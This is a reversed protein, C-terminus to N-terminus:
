ATIEEYLRKYEFAVRDISFDRAIFNWANRGLKKGYKEDELLKIIGKAMAQADRPKVLVAIDSSPFSNEGPLCEIDCLVNPKGSALSELVTVSGAHRYIISDVVIDSAAYYRPLDEQPVWGIFRVREGLGMNLALRQLEEKKRGDGAIILLSEGHEELVNKMARIIYTMGLANTHNLPKATFIVKSDKEGVLAERIKSGNVYPNFKRVDIAGPIIRIKGENIGWKNFFEDILFRSWSVLVRFSSRPLCYRHALYVFKSYLSLRSIGEIVAVHPIGKKEAFGGGRPIPFIHESHLVDFNEKEWVKELFSNVNFMFGFNKFALPFGNSLRHIKIGSKEEFTPVRPDYAVTVVTLELGLKSLERALDGIYLEAAGQSPPFCHSLICVKM